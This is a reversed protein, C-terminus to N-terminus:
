AVPPGRHSLTKVIYASPLKDPHSNGILAIYRHLKWNYVSSENDIVNYITNAMNSDISISKIIIENNGTSPIVFNDTLFVTHQDSNQNHTHEPISQGDSQATTHHEHYDDNHFHSHSHHVDKVFHCHEFHDKHTSEHHHHPVFAHFWLLM